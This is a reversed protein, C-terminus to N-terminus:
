GIVPKAVLSVRFTQEFLRKKLELAWLELPCDESSHVELILRKKGSEVRCVVDRVLGMQSRDLADAIRLASDLVEVLKCSAASLKQPRIKQPHLKRHCLAVTAITEVEEDDFGLLNWNRLLYYSHKHHDPYSIFTGIDHAMAAHRLLEEEAVGYSHLGLDGLQRYISCALESVKLAHNEEFRCIRGLQYISRDRASSDLYKQKVKDEQFLTDIILGERLARDSIKIGPAKVGSLIADLIVAGSVIIDAREPNIGPINRREELSMGCLISITQVLDEYKLFYNRISTVGGEVRRATIEALNMITGSSGYATDFGVERVKKIAHIAVGRAYDMMKGQRKKNIPKVIDARFIDALRIAGLKLSELMVYDRGDGVIVETTGGGIDIFLARQSGLEIGSVVGLYILRAEEMGSVIRVDVGAEEKARAVFEARNLAERVAATAVAVIESSDYRRAIDAFRSLLLMGRDMAPKTIRNHAFEGEGLRIAEKDLSLIHWDHNDDIRVVAERM